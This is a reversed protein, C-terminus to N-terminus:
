GTAVGVLCPGRQLSEHDVNFTDFVPMQPAIRVPRDTHTARLVESGYTGARDMRSLGFEQQWGSGDRGVLHQRSDQPSPHWRRLRCPHTFRHVDRRGRLYRGGRHPRARVVALSLIFLVM